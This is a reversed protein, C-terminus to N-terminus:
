YQAPMSVTAAIDSLLHMALSDTGFLGPAGIAVVIALVVAAVATTQAAGVTNHMM